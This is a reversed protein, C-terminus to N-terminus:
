CVNQFTEVILSFLDELEVKGFCCFLFVLRLPLFFERERKILSFLKCFVEQPLFRLRIMSKQLAAM